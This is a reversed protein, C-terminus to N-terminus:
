CAATAPRIEVVSDAMVVGISLLILGILTLDFARGARTDAEFIITYLQRRWGRGAAWAPWCSM